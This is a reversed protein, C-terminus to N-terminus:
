RQPHNSFLKAIEKKNAKAKVVANRPTMGQFVPLDPSAGAKLLIGTSTPEGMFVAIHLPSCEGPPFDLSAKGDILAQLILHNAAMVAIHLPGFEAAKPKNPDAGHELLVKMCALYQEEGAFPKLRDYAIERKTMLKERIKRSKEQGPAGGALAWIPTSGRHAKGNVDVGAKILSRFMEPNLSRNNAACYLANLGKDTLASKDAGAALLCEIVKVESHAAATLLPTYQESTRSELNSGAKLLLKVNAVTGPHECADQLPTFGAHDPRDIQKTGALLLTLVKADPNAAAAHLPSNGWPLITDAQADLNLLLKVGAVSDQHCACWLATKGNTDVTDVDVGEKILKAVNAWDNEEAAKVIPSTSPPDLLAKGEAGPQAFALTPLVFAVVVIGRTIPNTLM